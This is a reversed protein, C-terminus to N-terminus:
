MCSDPGVKATTIGKLRVTAMRPAPPTTRTPAIVDVPSGHQPLARLDPCRILLRSVSGRPASRTNVWECAIPSVGLFYRLRRAVIHIRHTLRPKPISATNMVDTAMKPKTCPFNGTQSQAVAGDIDIRHM